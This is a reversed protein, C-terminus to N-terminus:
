TRITLRSDTSQFLYAKVMKAVDSDKPLQSIKYCGCVAEYDHDDKLTGYDVKVSTIDDPDAGESDEDVTIYKTPKGRGRLFVDQVLGGQLQVIISSM